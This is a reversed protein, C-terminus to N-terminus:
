DPWRGVSVSHPGVTDWLLKVKGLNSGRTTLFQRLFVAHVINGKKSVHQGDKHITDRISKCDPNLTVPCLDQWDDDEVASIVESGYLIESMLVQAFRALNHGM